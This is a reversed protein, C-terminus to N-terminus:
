IPESYLCLQCPIKALNRAGRGSRPISIKSRSTTKIASSLAISNKARLILCIPNAWIFIFHSAFSVPGPTSFYILATHSCTSNSFAFLTNTYTALMWKLCGLNFARHRKAGLLVSGKNKTFSM